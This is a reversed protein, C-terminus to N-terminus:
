CRKKKNILAKKLGTNESQLLVCQVTLSHITNSLVQARQDHRDNILERLLKQIRRWDDATLVSRSSESSSPRDAEPNSFRKLVVEPNFPHLGCAKFGQLINNQNFTETYAQHFLRFFDRKTLASFAMSEQMFDVLQKSYAQSLPGFLCVDLPQLSHTSHPPYIALLIKNKDCYDIFKMSVHSGHGDLILLRYM